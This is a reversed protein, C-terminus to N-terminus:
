SKGRRGDLRSLADAFHRTQEESLKRQSELAALFDQTDKARVARSESLQTDIMDLLRKVVPRGIVWVAALVLGLFLSPWGYKDLIHEWNV